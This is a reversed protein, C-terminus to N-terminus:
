LILVHAVTVKGLRDHICTRLVLKMHRYRPKCRKLPREFEDNDPKEQDTQRHSSVVPHSVELQCAPLLGGFLCM